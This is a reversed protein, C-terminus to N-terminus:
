FVVQTRIGFSNGWDPGQFSGVKNDTHWRIYNFMLRSWDNLYWNLGLTYSQGLGGRPAGTFDYHDVRAALEWAGWGGSTVPDNVKVSGWSGSRSSFGPKEGTIMWGAAFSSGHRSVADTTHSDITRKGYESMAWFGRYVGGLEYGSGHDQSPNAISSASVALNANYDLAIAPTNNISTVGSSISEYWYWAGVHLFGDSGKLPNWHARTLYAISDSSTGTTSSSPSNGTVSLSYHWNEGYVKMQAGLGFFSNVPEGVTVAANRLMFPTRAQESSGETGLDKLFNGVYFKSRLGWMDTGYSLYSQRLSVKNGAFDAEIHYGLAGITGEAGLRAQSVQSGNINRGEYSSGKTGTFDVLLRADPKFTFFGDDSSFIPGAEGNKGWSANGGGAGGGNNAVQAQVLALESARSEAIAAQVQAETAGPSTQRASAPAAAVAQSAVQEHAEVASLRRKLEKIEAAQQKVLKVLDQTSIDEAHLPALAGLLVSASGAMLLRRSVTKM